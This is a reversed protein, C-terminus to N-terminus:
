EENNEKRRQTGDDKERMSQTRSSILMGVASVSECLPLLYNRKKRETTKDFCRFCIHHLCEELHCSNLM